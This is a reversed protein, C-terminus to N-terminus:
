RRRGVWATASDNALLGLLGGSLGLAPLLGPQGSWSTFQAAAAAFGIGAAVAFVRSVILSQSALSLQLRDLWSEAAASVANQAAIIEGALHTKPEGEGHGTLAAAHAPNSRSLDDYRAVVARADDPARAAVLTFLYPNQSPRGVAAKVENEITRMFLEDPLLTSKARFGARRWRMLRVLPWYPHRHVSDPRRLEGPSAWDVRAQLLWAGAARDMWGPTMGALGALVMVTEDETGLETSPLESDMMEAALRRMGRHRLRGPLRAHALLSLAQATKRTIPRLFHLASVTLLAVFLSVIFADVLFDGLRDLPVLSIDPSRAPPGLRGPGYGTTELLHLRM